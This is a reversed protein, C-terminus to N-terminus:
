AGQVPTKADPRDHRAFCWVAAIGFPVLVLLAYVPGFLIILGGQPDPAIKFAYIYLFAMLGFAALLGAFCSIVAARSARFACGFATPLILPVLPWGVLLLLGKPAVNASWDLSTVMTTLTTLIVVLGAVLLRHHLKM